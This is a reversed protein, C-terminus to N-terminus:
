IMAWVSAWATVRGGLLLGGGISVCNEAKDRKGLGVWIRVGICVTGLEKGLDKGM